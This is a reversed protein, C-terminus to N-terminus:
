NGSPSRGVAISELSARAEDRSIIGQQLLRASSRLRRAASERLQHATATPSPQWEPHAILTSEIARLADKARVHEEICLVLRAVRRDYRGIALRWELRQALLTHESAARADFDAVIQWRWLDNHLRLVGLRAALADVEQIFTTKTPGRETRARIPMNDLFEGDSGEWMTMPQSDPDYFIRAQRTTMTM